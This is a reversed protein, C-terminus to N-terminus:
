YFRDFFIREPRVKGSRMVPRLIADILGPPGAMYFDCEALGEMAALAVDGVLGTAAGPAGDRVALTLSLRDHRAALARMEDAMFLEDASNVGFFLRVPPADPEAIAARVVSLMPALGSGGAVCVIEREPPTRLYARGYPGELNVTDGAALEEFLYRSAHGGPKEKVIFALTEAETNAMSFARREGGPVQLLVFQGPLFPVPRVPRCDFAIVGPVLREFTEVTATFPSPAPEERAGEVQGLRVQVTCDGEPLAQCCLIRDGKRRDRESLGTADAWLSDVTGEQLRGKCSSCSGSACEYPMAFGAALGARLITEGPGCTFSEGGPALTITVPRTM